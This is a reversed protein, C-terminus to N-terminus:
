EKPSAARASSDLYRTLTDRWTLYRTAFQEFTEQSQTRGPPYPAKQLIRYLEPESEFLRMANNPLLFRRKVENVAVVEVSTPLDFPLEDVGIIEKVGALWADEDFPHFPPLVRKELEFALNKLRVAEDWTVYLKPQIM